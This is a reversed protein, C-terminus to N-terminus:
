VYRTPDRADYAEIHELDPINYYIYSVLSDNRNLTIVRRAKAMTECKIYSRQRNYFQVCVTYPTAAKVVLSIVQGTNYPRKSPLFSGNYQREAVQVM